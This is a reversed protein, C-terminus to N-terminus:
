KAVKSHPISSPLKMHLSTIATDKKEKSNAAAKHLQWCRLFAAVIGSM